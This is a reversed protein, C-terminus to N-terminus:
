HYGGVILSLQSLSLLLRYDFYCPNDLNMWHDIYDVIWHYNVFSDMSDNTGNDWTDISLNGSDYWSDLSDWKDISLEIM